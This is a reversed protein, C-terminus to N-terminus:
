RPCKQIETGQRQESSIAGDQSGDVYPMQQVTTCAATAMNPAIGACALLRFCFMELLRYTPPFDACAPLRLCFM